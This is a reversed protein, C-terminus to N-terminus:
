CTARKETSGASIRWAVVVLGAAIFLLSVVSGLVLHGLQYGTTLGLRSMLAAILGVRLLNSVVIILAALAVGELVRRAPVRRTWLVVACLMVLPAIVLCASCEPTIQLGFARPGGVGFYVIALSGVASTDSFPSFMVAALASEAARFAASWVLMAVAAAFVVVAAPREVGTRLLAPLRM